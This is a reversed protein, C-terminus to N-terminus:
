QLIITKSFSGKATSFRLTYSGKPLNDAQWTLEHKGAPKAESAWTKVAKGQLDYIGMSVQEAVPLQYSINVKGQAPNPYILLEATNEITNIGVSNQEYRYNGITSVNWAITSGDTKLLNMVDGTFTINRVDAINYAAQTGDKFSFYISQAQSISALLLIAGLIAMPKSKMGKPLFTNKTM